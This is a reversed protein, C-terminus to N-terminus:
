GRRGLALTAALKPNSIMPFCPFLVPRRQSSRM